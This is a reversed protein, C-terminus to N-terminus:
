PTVLYSKIDIFSGGEKGNYFGAQIQITHTGAGPWRWAFLVTNPISIGPSSKNQWIGTTDTTEVGDIFVRAHGAECCQEGMTGILAIGTGTFTISAPLSGTTISSPHSTADAWATTTMPTGTPNIGAEAIALAYGGNAQWESSTGDQPPGDFFRSYAGDLKLSSASASAAALLWTRAFAQNLQTGVDYMAEVLPEVIDNEAQLDAFVGNADALHMAVAQATAIAESRYTTDGTYGALTLGNYIMNGNVSAFFRGTKQSCTTGNDFVYVSYLPLNPDLFYQRVAAYEAKAKDLYSANGTYRYLLLAAKIYNSDTELTKLKNGGGGPLQYHISPCAGFAYVSPGAGDVVNFAAEEKALIRGSNLGTVEYERGLAISDWVPVDSWQGCGQATQCPASYGPATHSLTTLDPVVSADHHNIKWRLFLTYTLSDAGWDQNSAGCGSMCAKWKGNTYFDNLMNTVAQNGYDAYTSTARAPPVPHLPVMITIAVLVLSFVAGLLLGMWFRMHHVM